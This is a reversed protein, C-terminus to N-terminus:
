VSHCSDRSPFITHAWKIPCYIKHQIPPALTDEWLGSASYLHRKSNDERGDSLCPAISSCHPVCATVLGRFTRPLQGLVFTPLYFLSPMAMKMVWLTTLNARVPVSDASAAGMISATSVRNWLQFNSTVCHFNISFKFKIFLHPVSVSGM